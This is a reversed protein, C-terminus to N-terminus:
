INTIFAPGTVQAESFNLRLSEEFLKLPDVFDIYVVTVAAFLYLHVNVYWPLVVM